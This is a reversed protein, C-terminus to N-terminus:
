NNFLKCKLMSETFVCYLYIAIIVNGM